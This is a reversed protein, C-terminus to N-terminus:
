LSDIVLMLLIKCVTVKKLEFCGNTSQNHAPFFLVLHHIKKSPAFWLVLSTSGFPALMANGGLKQLKM